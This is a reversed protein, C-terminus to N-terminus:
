KKRKFKNLRKAMLSAPNIRKTKKAKRAQVIKTKARTLKMANRKAVNIPQTCQKLDSVKRGARVGTSCQFKQVLKPAFKSKASAKRAWVISTEELQQPTTFEHLRM